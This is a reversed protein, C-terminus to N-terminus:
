LVYRGTAPVARANGAEAHYRLLDIGLRTTVDGAILARKGQSNSPIRAWRFAM